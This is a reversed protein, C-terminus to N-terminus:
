HDKFGPRCTSALVFHPSSDLGVFAVRDVLEPPVVELERAAGATLSAAALRELSRPIGRSIGHLRTIARPTFVPKTSGAAALKMELYHEAQSRTLPLLGVALSWPEGPESRGPCESQELQIITLLTSSTSGLQVLNDIERHMRGMHRYVCDDVALIVQIRELSSARIARELIRWSGLRGMDRTVRAGLREALLAFLLSEDPPCNVRVFRRRPNRAEALARRLVTTKGVGAM